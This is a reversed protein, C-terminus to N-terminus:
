SQILIPIQHLSLLTDFLLAKVSDLMLVVSFLRLSELRLSEESPAFFLPLSPRTPFKDKDSYCNQGRKWRLRM